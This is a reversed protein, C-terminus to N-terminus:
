DKTEIVFQGHEHKILVEKPKVKCVKTEWDDLLQVFQQTTMKLCEPGVERSTRDMLFVYGNEEELLTANSGFSYTFKSQPDEKDAVAWERFSKNYCRVDSSLFHSLICMKLDTAEVYQYSNGNYQLKFYEV